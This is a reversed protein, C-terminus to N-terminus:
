VEQDRRSYENKVELGLDSASFCEHGGYQNEYLAFFPYIKVLKYRYRGLEHTLPYEIM